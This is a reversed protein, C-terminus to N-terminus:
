KTGGTNRPEYSTARNKKSSSYWSKTGLFHSRRHISRADVKKPYRENDLSVSQEM